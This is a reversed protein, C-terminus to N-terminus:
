RQLHSWFGVEPDNNVVYGHMIACPGMRAARQGAFGARRTVNDRLTRNALCQAYDMHGCTM